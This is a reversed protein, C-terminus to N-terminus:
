NLWQMSNGMLLFNNMMREKDILTFNPKFNHTLQLWLQFPEQNELIEHSASSHM